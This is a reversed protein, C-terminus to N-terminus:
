RGPHGTIWSSLTGHIRLCILHLAALHSFRLRWVAQHGRPSRMRLRSVALKCAGANCGQLDLFRYSISPAALPKGESYTTSPTYRLHSARLTRSASTPPELGRVGVMSGPSSLMKRRPLLPESLVGHRRSHMVCAPVLSTIREGARAHKKNQGRATSMAGMRLPAAIAMSPPSLVSVTLPGEWARVHPSEAKM